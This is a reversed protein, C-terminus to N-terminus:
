EPLKKTKCYKEIIESKNQLCLPALFIKQQQKFRLTWTSFMFIKKINHM